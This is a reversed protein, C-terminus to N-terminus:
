RLAGREADLGALDRRGLDDVTQQKCQCVFARADELFADGLAGRVDVHDVQEAVSERRLLAAGHEMRAPDPQRLDQTAHAFEGGVCVRIGREPLGRLEDHPECGLAACEVSGCGRAGLLGAMASATMTEVARVGSARDHRPANLRVCPAVSPACTTLLAICRAPSSGAETSSTMMPHRFGSPAVPKLMARCIANRAPHGTVVEPM